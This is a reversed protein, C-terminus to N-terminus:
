YRPFYIIFTTSFHTNECLPIFTLSSPFSLSLFFFFFHTPNGNRLDGKQHKKKKRNGQSKCMHIYTNRNIRCLSDTEWRKKKKTDHTGGQLTRNKNGSGNKNKTKEEREKGGRRKKKRKQKREFGQTKKM